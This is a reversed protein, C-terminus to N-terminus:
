LFWKLNLVWHILEVPQTVDSQARTQGTAGKALWAKPRKALTFHLFNALLTLGQPPYYHCCIEQFSLASINELSRVGHIIILITSLFVLIASPPSFDEYWITMNAQRDTLRHCSCLNSVYTQLYLKILKKKELWLQKGWQEDLQKLKVTYLSARANKWM